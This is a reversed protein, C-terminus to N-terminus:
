RRAEVENKRQNDGAREIKVLGFVRSHFIVWKGSESGSTGPNVRSSGRLESAVYRGKEHVM